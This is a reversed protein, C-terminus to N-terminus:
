YFTNKIHTIDFKSLLSEEELIQYIKNFFAFASERSPEKAAPHKLGLCTSSFISYWQYAPLSITLKKKWNSDHFNM